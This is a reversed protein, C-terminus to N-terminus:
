KSLEEAKNLIQDFLDKTLIRKSLMMFKAAVKDRKLNHKGLEESKSIALVLLETVGLLLNNFIKNKDEDISLNIKEKLRHKNETLVRVNRISVDYRTELEILTRDLGSKKDYFDM